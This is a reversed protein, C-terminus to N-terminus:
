GGFEFSSDTCPKDTFAQWTEHDVADPDFRRLGWLRLLMRYEPSRMVHEGFKAKVAGIGGSALLSVIEKVKDYDIGLHNQTTM